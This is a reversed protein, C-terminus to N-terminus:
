TWKGPAGKMGDIIPRMDAVSPLHATFGGDVALIQGTVYSSLDSALFVV